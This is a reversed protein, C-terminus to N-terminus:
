LPTRAYIYPNHNRFFTWVLKKPIKMICRVLMYNYPNPFNQFLQDIYPCIYWQWIKPWCLFWQNEQIETFFLVIQRTKKTSPESDDHPCPLHELHNRPNTCICVQDCFFIRVFFIIEDHLFFIKLFCWNKLFDFFRFINIKLHFSWTFNKSPTKM